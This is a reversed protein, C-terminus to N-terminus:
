RITCEGSSAWIRMVHHWFVFESVTYSLYYSYCGWARCVCNNTLWCVRSPILIMHGVLSYLFQQLNGFVVGWKERARSYIRSSSRMFLASFLMESGRPKVMKQPLMGGVGRSPCLKGRRDPFDTQSHGQTAVTKIPRPPPALMNNGVSNPLNHTGRFFDQSRGQYDTTQWLIGCKWFHLVLYLIVLTEPWPFHTFYYSTQWLIGCKWVELLTSCLLSHCPNRTM